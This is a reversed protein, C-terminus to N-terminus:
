DRLDRRVPTAMARAFRLAGSAYGACAGDGDIRECFHIGDAARVTITGDECGEAPGESSLCPLREPYTGFDDRLANGADVVVVGRGWRRAAAVYRDRLPGPDVVGVPGPSVVLYVPVDRSTWTELALDLDRTYKDLAAPEGLVEGDPGRMCDSRVNGVFQIVVAAPRLSEADQRMPILWDCIATGGFARVTVDATDGAGLADSFHHKSEVSLSDGYVVVRPRERLVVYLIGATAAVVVLIAAVVL